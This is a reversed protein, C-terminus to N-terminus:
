RVRHVPICGCPSLLPGGLGEFADPPAGTVAEIAEAETLGATRMAVAVLHKQEPSLEDFTM